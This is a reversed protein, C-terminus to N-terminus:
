EHLSVVSNYEATLLLDNQLTTLVQLKLIYTKASVASINGHLQLIKELTDIVDAAM